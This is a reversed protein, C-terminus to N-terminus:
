LVVWETPSIPALLARGYAGTLAYTAAGNVKVASSIPRLTVTNSASTRVVAIWAGGSKPDPLLVNLGGTPPEVVVLDWPRATYNGTKKDTPTWPGFFKAAIDTFTKATSEELAAIARLPEGAYVRRREFAAVTM